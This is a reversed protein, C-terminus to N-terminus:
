HLKRKALRFIQTFSSLSFFFFFGKKKTKKRHSNFASFALNAALALLAAAGTLALLNREKNHKAIKESKGESEKMNKETEGFLLEPPFNTDSNLSFPISGNKLWPPYNICKFIKFLHFNLNFIIKKEFSLNFFFFPPSFLAKILNTLLHLLLKNAPYPLFVVDGNKVGGM